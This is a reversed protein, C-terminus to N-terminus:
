KRYAWSTSAPDARGPSCMGVDNEQALSEGVIDRGRARFEAIPHQGSAPRSPHRPQPDRGIVPADHCHRDMVRGGEATVGRPRSEHGVGPLDQHPPLRVAHRVVLRRSLGEASEQMDSYPNLSTTTMGTCPEQRRSPKFATTHSLLSNPVQADLNADSESRSRGCWVTLTEWALSASRHPEPALWGAWRTGVKTGLSALVALNRANL